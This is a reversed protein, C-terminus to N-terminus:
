SDMDPFVALDQFALGQKKLVDIPLKTHLSAVGVQVTVSTSHLVTKFLFSLQFVFSQKGWVEVITLLDSYHSFSRSQSWFSIETELSWFSIGRHTDTGYLYTWEPPSWLLAVDLPALQPPDPIQNLHRKPDKRALHQNIHLPRHKKTSRHLCQSEGPPVLCTGSYSSPTWADSSCHSPRSM